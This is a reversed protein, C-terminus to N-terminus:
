RGVPSAAHILGSDLIAQDNDAIAALSTQARSALEQVENLLEGLANSASEVYDDGGLGANARVTIQQAHRKCVHITELELPTHFEM